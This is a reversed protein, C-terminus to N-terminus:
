FGLMGMTHDLIWARDEGTLVSLIDRQPRTNNTVGLAHEVDAAVSRKVTIFLQTLWDYLEVDTM